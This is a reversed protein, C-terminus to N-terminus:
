QVATVAASAQQPAHRQLLQPWSVVVSEVVKKFAQQENERRVEDATDRSGWSTSLTETKETSEYASYLYGTRTDLLLASCTTVATIKNTPSLGLTVVKLPTSLDNDYFATDMTYLFVLDAQLRAAAVRIDEDSDLNEPLLLRNISAVGTVQPLQSVVALAAEENLEKTLIVSYKGSGHRGGNQDLYLNSYGPAQVRVAAIAAPFPNTAKVAFADQISQSALKNLDAKEGPPIYSSACGTLVMLALVVAVIHM